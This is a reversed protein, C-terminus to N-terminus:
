YNVIGLFVGNNDYVSLEQYRVTGLKPEVINVTKGQKFEQKLNELLAWNYPNVKFGKQIIQHLSDFNQAKRM